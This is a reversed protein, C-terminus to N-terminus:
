RISAPRLNVQASGHPALDIAQYRTHSMWLKDISEPTYDLADETAVVYYKGPALTGSTYQGNQDTTGRLIRAALEAETPADAAAFICLARFCTQRHKLV